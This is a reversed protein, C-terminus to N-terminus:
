VGGDKKDLKLHRNRADLTIQGIDYPTPMYQHMETSIEKSRNLCIRKKLFRYRIILVLASLILISIIIALIKM